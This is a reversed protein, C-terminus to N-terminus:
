CEKMKAYKCFAELHKILTEVDEHTETYLILDDAYAAANIRIEGGDVPVASELKLLTPKEIRRLSSELCINFLMPSLHFGQVRDSAWPIFPTDGGILSIKSSNDTYKNRVLETVTTPIGMSIM